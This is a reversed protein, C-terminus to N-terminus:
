SNELNRAQQEMERLLAQMHAERWSSTLQGSFALHILNIFLKEIYESILISNEIRTQLLQFQSAFKQQLGIPPLPIKYNEIFGAPVRQQGVSGTFNAKAQNRFFTMRVLSYIWEPTGLKGHRLVHYETSGFSVDSIMSRAIAAKGNEMCPTIKAFLVDENKFATYGRKVEGYPRTQNGTIIGWEDDIDAMPLFSVVTNDSYDLNRHRPNIEAISKDGLKKVPWGKPNTAPDGFMKYFLAPLIRAAKEDAEKRKKRLADAQDLIEVIRRQESIPPLPIKFNKISGRSVEKFTTSGALQTIESTFQQLCYALYKSDLGPKPTFNAFGQNTVLPIRAIGIKGISARSSFLVTGPELLQASISKLGEDTIKEKTEFVDAIREGPMPLDTPTVWAIDGNWFSETNRKPTSGGRIVAIDDLKTIPWKM